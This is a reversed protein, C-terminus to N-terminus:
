TVPSTDLRATGNSAQYQLIEGNLFIQAKRKMAKRKLQKEKVSKVDPCSIFCALSSVAARGCPGVPTKSSTASGYPFNGSSAAAIGASKGGRSQFEFAKGTINVFNYKIM